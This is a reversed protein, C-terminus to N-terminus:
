FIQDNAGGGEENKSRTYFIVGGILGIVFMIIPMYTMIYDTTPLETIAAVFNPESAIAVWSNSIIMALFTFVVLYGVYILFFFKQEVPLSFSTILFGILLAIFLATFLNDAWNIKDGFDDVKDKVDQSVTENPQSQWVANVETWLVQAFLSMIAFIFLVIVIIWLGDALGKKNMVM